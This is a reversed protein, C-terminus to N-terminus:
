YMYVRFVSKHVTWLRKEDRVFVTVLRVSHSLYVDEICHLLICISRYQGVSLAFAGREHRGDGETQPRHFSAHQELNHIRAGCESAISRLEISRGDTDSLFTSVM